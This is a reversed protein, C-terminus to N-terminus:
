TDEGGMRKAARIRNDVCDPLYCHEGDDLPYGCTQCHWQQADCLICRGHSDYEHTHRNM